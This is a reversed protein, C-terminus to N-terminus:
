FGPPPNNTLYDPSCTTGTFNQWSNTLKKFGGGGAGGSSAFNDFAQTYSKWYDAGANAVYQASSRDDTGSPNSLILRAQFRAL